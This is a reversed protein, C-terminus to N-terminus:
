QIEVLEVRKSAADFILRLNGSIEFEDISSPNNSLAYIYERNSKKLWLPSKIGKDHVASFCADCIKLLPEEDLADAAFVSEPQIESSPISSQNASLSQQIRTVIKQAESKRHGARMVYFQPIAAFCLLGIIVLVMAMEKITFGKM